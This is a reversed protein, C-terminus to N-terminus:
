AHCLNCIHSRDLTATVVSYAQLQLESKVGLRPAETNKLHLCLFFFLNCYILRALYEECNKKNTKQRHWSNCSFSSPTLNPIVLHRDSFHWHYDRHLLCRSHMPELFWHELSVYTYICLYTHDYIYYIHIYFIDFKGDGHREREIYFIYMWFLSKIKFFLM